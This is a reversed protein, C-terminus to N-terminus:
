KDFFLFLIIERPDVIIFIQPLLSVERWTTHPEVVKKKDRM